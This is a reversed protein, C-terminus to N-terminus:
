GGILTVLGYVVGGVILYPIAIDIVWKQWDWKSKDDLTNVKTKLEDVDDCNNKIEAQMQVLSLKLDNTAEHFRDISDSLKDITANFNKIIEQVVSQNKDMENVKGELIDMRKELQEEQEAM